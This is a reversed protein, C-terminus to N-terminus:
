RPSGKSEVQRDSQEDPRQPQDKAASVRKMV